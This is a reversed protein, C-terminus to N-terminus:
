IFVYSLMVILDYIYYEFAITAIKAASLYKIGEATVYNSLITLNGNIVTLPTKLDHTITSIMLHKYKEETAKTHFKELSTSERILLLSTEVSKFIVSRKDIVYRLTNSSDYVMYKEEIILNAASCVGILFKLLCIGEWTITKGKKTVIRSDNFLFDIKEKIEKASINANGLLLKLAINSYLVSESNCIVIADDSSDLVNKWKKSHLKMKHRELILERKMRM